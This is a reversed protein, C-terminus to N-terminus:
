SDCDRFVRLRTDYGLQRAWALLRGSRCEDVDEGRAFLLVLSDKRLSLLLASNKTFLWLGPRGVKPNLGHHFAFLERLNMPTSPHLHLLRELFPSPHLYLHSNLKRGVEM